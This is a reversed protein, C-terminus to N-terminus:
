SWTEEERALLFLYDSLRNVYKLLFLRIGGNQAKLDCIRREARRCITRALHLHASTPNQGPMVFEKLPPLRDELDVAREELDSLIKEDVRQYAGESCSLEFRDQDVEGVALETAVMWLEKQLGLLTDKLDNRSTVARAVGLAASLEDITGYAEVRPHNKPVRRGYMLMTSGEDGRGTMISM